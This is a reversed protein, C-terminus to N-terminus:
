GSAAFQRAATLVHSAEKGAPESNILVRAPARNNLLPNMGQFWVQAVRPSDRESILTAIRYALALRERSDDSRIQVLGDAWQSITRTNKVGGIYATLKAGLLERTATALEADSMKIARNYANLDIKRVAVVM